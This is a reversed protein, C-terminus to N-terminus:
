PDPDRRAVREVVPRSDPLLKARIAHVKRARQKAQSWKCSRGTAYNAITGELTRCKGRAGVLVATAARAAHRTSDLDLGRIKKWHARTPGSWHVQWPSRAAFYRRTIRGTKPDRIITEDCEFPKCQNAHVHRAFRSEYWGLTVLLAALEERTGPWAPKCEADRGHCTAENSAEVIATAITAMRADRGAEEVDGYWPVLALLAALVLDYFQM